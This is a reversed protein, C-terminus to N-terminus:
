GSEVARSFSAARSILTKHQEDIVSIGIALDDTWQINMM